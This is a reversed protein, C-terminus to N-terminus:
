TLRAVPTALITQTTLAMYPLRPTTQLVTWHGQDIGLPRWGVGLTALSGTRPTQTVPPQDVAACCSYLVRLVGSCSPNPLLTTPYELPLNLSWSNDSTLQPTQPQLAMNGAIM